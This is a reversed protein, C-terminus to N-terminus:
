TSSEQHGQNAVALLQMSEQREEDADEMPLTGLAQYLLFFILLNVKCQHSASVATALASIVMFTMRCVLGFPPLRAILWRHFIVSGVVQKYQTM